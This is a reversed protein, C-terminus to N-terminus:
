GDCELIIVAVVSFYNSQLVDFMGEAAPVSFFILHALWVFNTGCELHTYVSQAYCVM